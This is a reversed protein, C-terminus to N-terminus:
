MVVIAFARADGQTATSASNGVYMPLPDVFEDDGLV